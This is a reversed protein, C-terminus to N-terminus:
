NVNKFLGISELYTILDRLDQLKKESFGAFRSPTNLNERSRTFAPRIINFITSKDYNPNKVFFSDLTEHVEAWKNRISYKIVDNIFVEERTILDREYLAELIVPDFDNTRAKFQNRIHKASKDYDGLYAYYKSMWKEVPPIYLNELPKYFNLTLDYRSTSISWRHLYILFQV